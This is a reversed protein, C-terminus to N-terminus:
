IVSQYAKLAPPVNSEIVGLIDLRAAVFSAIHPFRSFLESGLQESSASL